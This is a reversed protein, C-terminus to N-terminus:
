IGGHRNAYFVFDEITKKLLGEFIEDSWNSEDYWSSPISKYRKGDDSPYHEEFSLRNNMDHQPGGSLSREQGKRYRLSFTVSYESGKVEASMGRDRCKQAYTEAIRVLGPMVRKVFARNIDEAKEKAERTERQATLKADIKDFFDDSM